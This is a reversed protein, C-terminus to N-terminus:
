KDEIEAGADMIHAFFAKAKGHADGVPLTDRTVWLLTATGGVWKKSLSRALGNDKIHRTVSRVDGPYGQRDLWRTLANATYAGVHAQVDAIFSRALIETLPRNAETVRQKLPSDPPTTGSYGELDRAALAHWLAAINAPDKRWRELDEGYERDMRIERCQILHFRRDGDEIALANLRNTNLLFSAALVEPALSAGFRHMHRPADLQPQVRDKLFDMASTRTRTRSDSQQVEDFLVFIKRTLEDEYGKDVLRRMDATNALNGWLAKIFAWLTGKGTGPEQSYLVTAYNRRGPNQIRAAVWNIFAEQDEEDPIVYRVADFFPAPDRDSPPHQPMRFLNLYWDGHEQFFVDNPHLPDWMVNDCWRGTQLLYEVNSRVDEPKKHPWMNTRAVGARMPRKENYIKGDAYCYVHDLSKEAQELEFSADEDQAELAEATADTPQLLGRAAEITEGDDDHGREVETEPMFHIVCHAHDVLMPGDNVDSKMLVGAESDSDPRWATMNLGPRAERADFLDEVTGVGLDTDWRLDWVKEYGQIDRPGSIETSHAELDTRFKDRLVELQARTIEPLEDVPPLSSMKGDPGEWELVAGSKHTGFAACLRGCGGLFEVAGHEFKGTTMYTLEGESKMRFLLGMRTTSTSRCRYPAKREPDAEDM